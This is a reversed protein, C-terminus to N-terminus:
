GGVVGVLEDISSGFIVVGEQRVMPWMDRGSSLRSAVETAAVELVDVRNGTFRRVQQRWQALSDSWSDDAEDIDAPRVVVVDLDSEADADGRVFSGFAIVSVPPGDVEGASRGMEALVIEKSRVLDSLLRVMLHEPVLRFLSSPPVERRDVVGLQVLRPLVRSAQAQSVGALEAITRLNLEATTDALVALM